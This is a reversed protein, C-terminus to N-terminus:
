TQIQKLLALTKEKGFIELIQPLPLGRNSGTLLLYFVPMRIQKEDMVTKMASFIMDHNWEDLSTFQETLRAALKKDEDTANDTFSTDFFCTTLKEFDNLTEMRTKVLLMLRDITEGSLEKARPYFSMIRQKLAEDSFSQLYQQNMWTLKTLDFVPGVARIDKPDFMRIFEDHSFIEKGEPHTWGLLALFNLIAEPLYGSEQYWSVETHGQRKSLKSKDPNRLLPTHYFKPLEWGLLLYLLVHKPTSSIWEEGRIVHTIKMLYDDVVVALHYTPYGDSKLLIQDDILRKSGETTIFHMEGRIGDVWTYSADDPVKLRIVGQTKGLDRCHRDYMPTQKNEQMKKRVEELRDPSCNCYYADGQVVLKQAYKRYLELRESQKYPAYPGDKRPSEQESIHFWDLAAYIKEEADSVFRTRDTDEIRVVFQGKERQAFSSNFLAQYMTGIHPYGTPSPAIRTRVM